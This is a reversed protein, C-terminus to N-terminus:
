QESGLMLLSKKIQETNDRLTEAGSSVSSTLDKMQQLAQLLQAGGENQEEMAKKMVFEQDMVKSSLSVVNEFDKQASVTTGFASTILSTIKKLVDSIKKAESGSNEALKRIEDAVVAFGKGYEGAHAAEIAANMALLNTQSAINQIVSSMESLGKSNEEISNVIVSVNELNTKGTQTASDLDTVAQANKELIRSISNINAIMEEIAASSTAVSSTMDKAASVLNETKQEVTEINEVAKASTQKMASKLEERHDENMKQVELMMYHRCNEPKNLGNFIAVAMQECSNYGCSGCNLLDEKNFKKMNHFIQQIDDDTPRKIESKFISNRNIYTRKYLEPKWYADITKNLKKLGKKKWLDRRANSRREVFGEMKDLPMNHDTTGAGGNCGKTCNLCDILKFVPKEGQQISKALNAFYEFVHPQGEIKRTIDSVAPLFREATRMLGGPASYLVGREAPQNAYDAQPFDALSVGHEAFYADISRMTVNYDCLGTEDFEHRKAYCPSIAAIKCDAYEPYFERIMRVTHLMPSHVPALYNILDPRYLEIFMVLVPCPQSILCDPNNKKMYEVYSKTTLEAGFGVDFVAKVGLSRLWGNLELDKGQFNVAVAPASIAIIKQGNKLDEFFQPADDIGIRANHTCADICSGCGLCLKENIKVYSGSGDNCMKAPCVAICRHCNVCKDKDVKIVRTMREEM